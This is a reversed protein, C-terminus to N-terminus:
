GIVLVQEVKMMQNASPADSGMGEEKRATLDNHGQLIHCILQQQENEVSHVWTTDFERKHLLGHLSFQFFRHTAVHLQWMPNPSEGLGWVCDAMRGENCEPEILEDKTRVRM